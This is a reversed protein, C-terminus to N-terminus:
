TTRLVVFARREDVVIETVETCIGRAHEDAAVVHTTPQGRRSDADDMVDDHFLAFAHMLEIAAGADLAAEVEKDGEMRAVVEDLDAPHLPRLVPCSIAGAVSM